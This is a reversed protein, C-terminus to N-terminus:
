FAEPAVENVAAAGHVISDRLGPVRTLVHEAYFRAVAIKNRMFEGDEGAALKKQAALLARGLQWGAVLNGALLLYPVSGAFAANPDTRAHAVVFDVAEVFAQRAAALRGAM